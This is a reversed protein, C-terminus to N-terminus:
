GIVRRDRVVYARARDWPLGRSIQPPCLLMPASNRRTSRTDGTGNWWYDMSVKMKISGKGSPCAPLAQAVEFLVIRQRVAALM